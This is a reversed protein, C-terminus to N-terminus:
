SSSGKAELNCTPNTWTSDAPNLPQPYPSAPIHVWQKPVLLLNETGLQNVAKHPSYSDKKWSPTGPGEAQGRPRLLYYSCFWASWLSQFLHKWFPFWVNWHLCGLVKGGQTMYSGVQSDEWTKRRIGSVTSKELLSFLPWLWFPSSLDLPPETAPRILMSLCARQQKTIYFTVAGYCIPILSPKLIWETGYWMEVGTM